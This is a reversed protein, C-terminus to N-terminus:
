TTPTGYIARHWAIALTDALRTRARDSLHGQSAGHCVRESMSSLVLALDTATPPAPLALGADRERRIQEAAAAVFRTGVETWFAQLEPDGACSNAIARLVAGHEHWLDLYNGIARRLAQEPQEDGRRLWSGSVEFVLDALRASLARLVAERSDFYFYFTSRSIGAGQALEDISLSSLPREALLEAMTDLIAAERLDGRRPGRRRGGTAESPRSPPSPVVTLPVPRRRSRTGAASGTFPIVTRSM